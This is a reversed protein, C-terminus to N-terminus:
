FISSVLNKSVKRLTYIKLLEIKGKNLAPEENIRIGDEVETIDITSIKIKMCIIIIYCIQLKQRTGKIPSCWDINFVEM